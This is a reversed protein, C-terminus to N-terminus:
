FVQNNGDFYLASFHECLQIQTRNRSTGTIMDDYPILLLNGSIDMSEMRADINVFANGFRFV